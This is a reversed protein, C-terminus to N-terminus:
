DFSTHFRIYCYPPSIIETSDEHTADVSLEGMVTWL